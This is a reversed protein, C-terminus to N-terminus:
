VEGEEKEKTLLLKFSYDLKILRRCLEVEQGELRGNDQNLLLNFPYDIKSLMRFDEAGEEDKTFLLNFPFYIWSCAM